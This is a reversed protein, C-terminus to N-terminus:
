TAYKRNKFCKQCNRAYILEFKKLKCSVQCTVRNQIDIITNLYNSKFVITM